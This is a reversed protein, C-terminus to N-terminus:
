RTLSHTLTLSHTPSHTLSHSHTFSHALLCTGLKDYNHSSIAQSSLSRQRLDEICSHCMTHLGLLLLLYTLLSTLLLISSILSILFLGIISWYYVLLLGIISSKCPLLRPLALYDTDDSRLHSTLLEYARDCKPCTLGGM